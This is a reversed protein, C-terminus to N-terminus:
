TRECFCGTIRGPEGWGHLCGEQDDHVDWPHGCLCARAHVAADEAAAVQALHVAVQALLRYTAEARDAQRAREHCHTGRRTV